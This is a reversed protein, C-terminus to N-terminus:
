QDDGLYDHLNNYYRRVADSVKQATELCFEDVPGNLEVECDYLAEFIVKDLETM